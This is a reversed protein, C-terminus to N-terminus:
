WLQLLASIKTNLRQVNGCPRIDNDLYWRRWVVV